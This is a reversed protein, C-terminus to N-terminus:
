TENPAFRSQIPALAAATSAVAPDYGIAQRNLLVITARPLWTPQLRPSVRGRNMQQKFWRSLAQTTALSIERVPVGIRDSVVDMLDRTNANMVGNPAADTLRASYGLSQFAYIQRFAANSGILDVVRTGPPVQIGNNGGPLVAESSGGSTSVYLLAAGLFAFGLLFATDDSRNM